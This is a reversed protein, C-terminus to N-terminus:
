AAQKRRRRLFAAGMGALALLARSPEPVAGMDGALISAGPTNNYAWDFVTIANPDPNADVSDTWKMRVWGYYTNAGTQFRIGAFGTVNSAWTGYAPSGGFFTRLQIGNWSVFPQGASVAAGSALRKLGWSATGNPIFANNGAAAGFRARGIVTSSTTFREVVIKFNNGFVGDIDLVEQASGFGAGISATIDAPNVYVVAAEAQHQLAFVSAVTSGIAAAGLRRPSVPHHLPAASTPSHM